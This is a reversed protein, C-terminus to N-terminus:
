KNTKTDCVYSACMSEEAPIGSNCNSCPEVIIQELNCEQSQYNNYKCSGVTCNIKQNKEM